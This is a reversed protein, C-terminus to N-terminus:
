VLPTLLFPGWFHEKAYWLSGCKETGRVNIRWITPLANSCKEALKESSGHNKKLDELSEKLQENKPFFQVSKKWFSYPHLFNLTPLYTSMDPKSLFNATFLPELNGTETNFLRPIPCSCCRPAKRRLCKRASNPTSTRLFPSSEIAKKGRDWGRLKNEERSLAATGCLNPASRWIAAYM